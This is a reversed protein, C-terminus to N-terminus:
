DKLGLILRALLGGSWAFAMSMLGSLLGLFAHRNWISAAARARAPNPHAPLGKNWNAAMKLGLWGGMAPLAAGPQVLTFATFIVREVLGTYWGPIDKKPEPEGVV